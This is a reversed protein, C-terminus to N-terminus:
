TRKLLSKLILNLVLFALLEPISFVFLLGRTQPAMVGQFRSINQGADLSSHGFTRLTSKKLFNPFNCATKQGPQTKHPYTFNLFINVRKKQGGWKNAM